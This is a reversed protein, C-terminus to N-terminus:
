TGHQWMRQMVTHYCLRSIGCIFGQWRWDVGPLAQDKRQIRGIIRV